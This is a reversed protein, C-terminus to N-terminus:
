IKCDNYQATFLNMPFLKLINSSHGDFFATRGFFHLAIQHNKSYALGTPKSTLKSEEGCQM